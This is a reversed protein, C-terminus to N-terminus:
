LLKNRRFVGCRMVCGIVLYGRRCGRNLRFVRADNGAVVREPSQAATWLHAQGTAEAGWVLLDM